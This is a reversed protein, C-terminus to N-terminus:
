KLKLEKLASLLIKENLRVKYNPNVYNFHILGDTDIVYVSPIPLSHHKKGSAEELNIGYTKYALLTKNDLKFSVGFSSALVLNSDSILQYSLKQKDISKKLNLVKDPSVAVLQYGLAEIEKTIKRLNALQINCYPCWGGRYFVLVTPKKSLISGITIDNNNIDKTLLAKDVKQGNLLPATQKAMDKISACGLLILLLLTNITKL